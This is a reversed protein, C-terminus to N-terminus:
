ADYEIARQIAEKTVHGCSRHHEETWWRRCLKPQYPFSDSKPECHGISEISQKIKLYGAFSSMNQNKWQDAEGAAWAPVHFGMSLLSHLFQQNNELIIEHTDPRPNLYNWGFLWYPFVEGAAEYFRVIYEAITNLVSDPDVMELRRYIDHGGKKPHALDGRIDNFLKLMEIVTVSVAPTESLIKTPWKRLKDMIRCNRLVKFIQGEDESKALHTRMNRNIFAELSAIGFYLSSTLHHFKGIEDPAGRAEVVERYLSSFNQWCPDTSWPNM